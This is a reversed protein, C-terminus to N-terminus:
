SLWAPKLCLKRKYYNPAIWQRRWVKLRVVRCLVTGATFIPFVLIKNLLLLPGLSLAHTYAEGAAAAVGAAVTQAETQSEESAVTTSVDANALGKAKSYYVVAKQHQGMAIYTEHINQYIAVTDPHAEGLVQTVWSSFRLCDCVAATSGQM